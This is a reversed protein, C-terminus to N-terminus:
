VCLPTELILTFSFDNEAYERYVYLHKQNHQAYLAAKEINEICM